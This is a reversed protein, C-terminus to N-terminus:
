YIDLEVETLMARADVAIPFPHFTNQQDIRDSCCSRRIGPLSSISYIRWPLLTIPGRFKGTRTM